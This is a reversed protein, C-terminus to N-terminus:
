LLSSTLQLLEYFRRDMDGRALISAVDQILMDRLSTVKPDLQERSAYVLSLHAPAGLLDPLVSHLLSAELAPQALLSPLLAIGEGALCAMLMLSMDNTALRGRVQVLGGAQVPWARQPLQGREFGLICTHEHQLADLTAPAGARAFYRPSACAILRLEVLRRAILREDRVAGARIALDVRQAILDVHEATAIVELQTEPYRRMWALLTDSFLTTMHSPPTSLRLLGRPVGDRRRVDHWTEEVDALIRTARAYLAVGAETLTIARTTRHMLRVGYAAELADLRRTLTQRPVGLRAAAASISRAEVIQVLEYLGELAAPNM